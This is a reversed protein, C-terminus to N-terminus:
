VPSFLLQTSNMESTKQNEGQIQQDSRLKEGLSAGPDTQVITIEKKEKWM